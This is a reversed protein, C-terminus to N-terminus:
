ISANIGSYIVYQGMNQRQLPPFMYHYLQFNTSDQEFEGIINDEDSPRALVLSNTVDDQQNITGDSDIAVIISIVPSSALPAYITHNTLLRYFPNEIFM